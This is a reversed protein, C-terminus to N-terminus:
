ERAGKAAQAKQKIILRKVMWLGAGAVLAGLNLSQWPFGNTPFNPRERLSDNYLRAIEADTLFRGFIKLNAVYGYFVSGNSLDMFTFENDTAEEASGIVDLKFDPPLAITELKKGNLWTVIRGRELDASCDLRYWKGPTIKADKFRHAFKQNNLTVSLFNDGRDLGFWRYNKGATLLNRRTWQDYGRWHEYKGGTLKNLSKELKNARHKLVGAPLPYFDMGVTFSRYNMRALPRVMGLHDNINQQYNGDVYLAPQAFPIQNTLLFPPGGKLIEDGNKTFPYYAILGDPFSIGASASTAFIISFLVSRM